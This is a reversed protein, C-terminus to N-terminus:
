NKHNPSQSGTLENIIESVSLISSINEVSKGAQWYDKYSSGKVSAKKLQFISRLTYYLRAYHKTKQNQLLKKLIFSAKVGTKEIYATKIVSVPVGSIKDTLVIDDEGAEIIANKYDDHASCEISAIFRTGLQVGQYGASLAQEYDRRSSIGGAAIVPVNLERMEQILTEMSKEGAHGGARNNVCIIGDVGAALAKKAWKLETVDHYVFGGAAKAKEVVWQPNGLSTVFFRIGKSIAIDVWTMMRKEYTKSSKEVIVNLAVPKSTLSFIHDLGESFDYGHVYVLSLPQIVGIGGAESAAAVLEPNSCPYMAGCIVPKEIKAHELFSNEQLSYSKTKQRKTSVANIDSSTHCVKLHHVITPIKFDCCYVDSLEISKFLLLLGPKAALDELIVVDHIAPNIVRM